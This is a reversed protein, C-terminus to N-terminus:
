TDKGYNSQLWEALPELTEFDAFGVLVYQFEEDQWHVMQLQDDFQRRELGQVAGTPNRKMCFGTLRDQEDHYAIQGVPWGNVFFLRGGIFTMEADPVDPLDPLEPVTIPRGLMGSLWM